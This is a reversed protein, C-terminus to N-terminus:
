QKVLYGIGNRQLSIVELNRRRWQCINFFSQVACFFGMFFWLCFYNNVNHIEKQTCNQPITDMLLASIFDKTRAHWDPSRELIESINFKVDTFTFSTLKSSTLQQFENVKPLRIISYTGKSSMQIFITM